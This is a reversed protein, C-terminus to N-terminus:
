PDALIHEFINKSFHAYYDANSFLENLKFHFKLRLLPPEPTQFPLKSFTTGTQLRKNSINNNGQKFGKIQSLTGRNSSV